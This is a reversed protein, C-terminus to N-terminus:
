SIILTKCNLEEFLYKFDIKKGNISYINIPHYEDIGSKSCMWANFEFHDFIFIRKTGPCKTCGVQDGKKLISKAFNVSEQLKERREKTM